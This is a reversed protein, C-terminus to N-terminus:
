RQGGGRRWIPEAQRAVLESWVLGGCGLGVGALLCWGGVRSGFFGVLDVGLAWAAALGLLPLVALLQSTARPGALEGAVVTAADADAAMTVRILGLAEALGAGSRETAQWAQGIWALGACGPSEALQRLVTWPDGGLRVAGAVPVVLPCEEAAFGIAAGPLHGLALMSEMIEAVRLCQRLHDTARRAAVKGWILWGLSAAVMGAVALPVVAPWVLGAVGAGACAVVAWRWRGVSPPSKATPPNLRRLRDVRGVSAWGAVVAAIVGLAIM